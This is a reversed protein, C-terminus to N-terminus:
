GVVDVKYWIGINISKIDNVDEIIIPIDIEPPNLAFSKSLM